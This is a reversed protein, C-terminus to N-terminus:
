EIVEYIGDQFVRRDKKRIKLASKMNAVTQGVAEKDPGSVKVDQGKVEVKTEDGSIKAKRPYKEGIFNKIVVSKGKVELTVPFHSYLVKLQKLYGETVGRIMSNILSSVTGVLAKKKESGTVVVNNGEKEIAVKGALRKTVSGKPGKVMVDFGNIDVTVGEPIAIM